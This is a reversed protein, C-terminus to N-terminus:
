HAHNHGGHAHDPEANVPKDVVLTETTLLLSAISAANAVANRTVKVPDLVGAAVLDEYEGTAANLGSGAPLDSVKQVVVYGELGANEAIWRLPEVLSTRILAVGTAEDGTLASTATSCGVTAHVLASFRRRRRHGGRGRGQDGLRRGRHPAQAGQARGRHAAGVSSSRSAAPSSPSVSRSSRAQGLRQRQGRDRRPDPAVRDAVESAEDGGGDVLM